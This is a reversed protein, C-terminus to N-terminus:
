VRSSAFWFVCGVVVCIVGYAVVLEDFSCLHVPM